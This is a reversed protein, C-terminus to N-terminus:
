GALIKTMKVLFRVLYLNFVTKKNKADFLCKDNSVIKTVESKDSGLSHSLSFAFILVNCPNNKSTKEFNM